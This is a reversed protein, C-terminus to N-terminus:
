GSNRHKLGTEHARVVLKHALEPQLATLFSRRKIDVKLDVDHMLDEYDTTDHTDWFEAAEGISKFSEPIRNRKKTPRKEM